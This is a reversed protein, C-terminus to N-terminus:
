VSSDVHGLEHNEGHVGSGSASKAHGWARHRGADGRSRAARKEHAFVGDYGLKQETVWRRLWTLCWVVAFIVCIGVAIGFVYAAVLGGQKGPDLFDYTYFGKTARTLYALALYLALILVLSPLYIWPSPDTRPLLVELLAFVSNLAHQSVNSWTSYPTAFTRPSSLLAWYVITVLFPFTTVSAYLLGHLARLARPWRDLPAAGHRAYALTHAAAVLAYFAIGWYTLV